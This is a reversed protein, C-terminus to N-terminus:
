ISSFGSSAKTTSCSWYYNSHIEVPFQVHVVTLTLFERPSFDCGWTKMPKRKLFGVLNDCPSGFFARQTMAPSLFLLLLIVRGSEVGYCLGIRWLSLRGVPRHQFMKRSTNRWGEKWVQPNSSLPCVYFCLWWSVPSWHFLNLVIRPLSYITLFSFDISRSSPFSPRFPFHSVCGLYKGVLLSLIIM